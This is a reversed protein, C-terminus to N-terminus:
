LINLLSLNSYLVSKLTLEPRKEFFLLIVVMETVTGGHKPAKYKSLIYACVLIATLETKIKVRRRVEEGREKTDERVGFVQGFVHVNAQSPQM